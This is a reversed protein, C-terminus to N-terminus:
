SEYSLIKFLPILIRFIRILASFHTFDFKCNYKQLYNNILPKYYRFNSTPMMKSTDYYASKM